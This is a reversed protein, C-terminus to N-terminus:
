DFGHARSQRLVPGVDLMRNGYQGHGHQQDDPCPFHGVAFARFTPLRQAVGASGPEPNGACRKRCDRSSGAHAVVQTDALGDIASQHHLRFNLIVHLVQHAQDM